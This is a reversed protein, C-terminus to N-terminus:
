FVVRMPGRLVLASILSLLMFWLIWHFGFVTASPYEIRIGHGTLPRPLYATGSGAVFRAQMGAVAVAGSVPQRPRIRWSTEGTSTIFIPKTEVAVHDPTTISQQRAGVSIVTAEGVRLPARSYLADLMWMVLAMPLCLIVLPGLLLKMLRLQDVVLARQSRLIQAPDDMFLRLEFLHANAQAKARAVGDQDSFRRVVLMALVTAAVSISAIGLLADYGLDAENM